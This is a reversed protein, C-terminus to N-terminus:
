NRYYAKNVQALVGIIVYFPIVLLQLWVGSLFLQVFGFISGTFALFTLDRVAKKKHGVVDGIVLLNIISILFNWAGAFVLDFTNLNLGLGVFIQLGGVGLWFLALLVLTVIIIVDVTNSGSTNLVQQNFVAATQPNASLETSPQGYAPLINQAKEIQSFSQMPSAPLNSKPNPPLSIESVPFSHTRVPRFVMFLGFGVLLFILFVILGIFVWLLDQTPTINTTGGNLEEITGLRFQSYEEYLPALDIPVITYPAEIRAIWDDMFKLYHTKLSIACTPTYISDTQRRIEKFQSLRIAPTLAQNEMISAWQFLAQDLDSIFRDKNQETCPAAACGSLLIFILIVFITHQIKHNKILAGM